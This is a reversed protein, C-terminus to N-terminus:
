DAGDLAMFVGLQDMGIECTQQHLYYTQDISKCSIWSFNVTLTEECITKLYTEIARKLEGTASLGLCIRDTIEYQVDKRFRQIRNIVERSLGEQRLELTIITDLVVTVGQEHAIIEGEHLPEHNVIVDGPALAFSGVVISQKQKLKNFCEHLLVKDKHMEKLSKTLKTINKGLKKGLSKFNLKLSISVYHSHDVALHISKVNLESLLLTKYQGVIERNRHTIITLLALPQRTKIQDKARLRRALNIVIRIFEIDAELSLDIYEKLVQPTSCHHVSIPWHDQNERLVQYIHEAIFPAFPALLKSYEMLVYFLTEYAEMHNGDVRSSKGNEWFRRRNVRIYWNTLDDIFHILPTVVRFLAYVEMETHITETLTQLKSLIWRDNKDSTEPPKGNILEASPSWKDAAAYTSLFSTANWLPLLVARTTEKVGQNRFILNEGRLVPSNLIFLRISDAGYEDLLEEPDTYNRHRKSMKRGHEDLILGNVVVNKFVPKDFLATSLVLLTYFWGRTQDLGESIFDAPYNELFAERNEFPYHLQAYPMSGSEFWCDFVEPIRKMEGGCDACSFMLPDIQDKHLDEVRVGTKEELEKVSSVIHLHKANKTCKWVPLPTGWFRNRSIAWDRAQDLWKGMRGLRIHSPVWHIEKNNKVLAQKIKTVAVYWAPIVRYILPTGTREDFPYSHVITEHKLIHGQKKLDKILEKDAEKIYLGKYPPIMEHITGDECLHDVPEIGHSQGVKFDDEGFAPAIHVIGTGEEISVFDASVVSFAKKHDQFFPFLPHYQKGLLDKGQYHALIVVTSQNQKKDFFVTEVRDKALYYIEGSKLHRVKVYILDLKVALALNALLTWPTTTWALFFAEEGQVSFKVTISPDQTQQYNQNAEFNSVVSATRPSYAVCYHGRYILKKKYLESFVWWVSEMFDKDMTRYEDDWDVWRGIRTITQRWEKTYTDISQRCLKNFQGVGMKLIDKRGKLLNQKEVEYEVPLGHCDWGFRRHVHYGRMNWYRPIVDKVTSALLHGYHPLGNAFPPGDYFRYKKANERLKNSKEFCRHKKWFVLIEEEMKPFVIKPSVLKM